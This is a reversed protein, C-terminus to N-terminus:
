VSALRVSITIITDMTSVGTGGTTDIDSFVKYNTRPVEKYVQELGLRVNKRYASENSHVEFSHM